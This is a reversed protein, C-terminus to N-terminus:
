KDREHLCWLVAKNREGTSRTCPYELSVLKFHNLLKDLWENETIMTLHLDTVWGPRIPVKVYCGEEVANAVNQITDDVDESPIHELVDTCFGWDGTVPFPQRIDHIVDVDRCNPAIDINTVRYKPGTLGGAVMWADSGCGINLIYGEKVRETFAAISRKGSSTKRDLRYTDHYATYKALESM